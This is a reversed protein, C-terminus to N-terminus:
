RMERERDRLSGDSVIGRRPIQRDTEVRSIGASPPCGGLWARGSRPVDATPVSAGAPVTVIVPSPDTDPQAHGSPAATVLGAAVATAWLAGTVPHRFWRSGSGARATARGTRM